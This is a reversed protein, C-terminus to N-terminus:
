INRRSSMRPAVQGIRTYTMCLFFTSKTMFKQLGSLTRTGYIERRRHPVVDPVKRRLGLLKAPMKTDTIGHFNGTEHQIPHQRDFKGGVQYIKLTGKFKGFRYTM